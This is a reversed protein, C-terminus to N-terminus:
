RCPQYQQCNPYIGLRFSSSFPVAPTPAGVGRTGKEYRVIIGCGSAAHRGHATESHLRAGFFEMRGTINTSVTDAPVASGFGHGGDVSTDPLLLQVHSM